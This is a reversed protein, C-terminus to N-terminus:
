KDHFIIIIRGNRSDLGIHFVGGEMEANLSGMVFWYDNCKYIGYPRQNIINQKGFVNFLIPEIVSILTKSDNILKTNNLVYNDSKESQLYENIYKQAIKQGLYTKNNIITDDINSILISINPDVQISDNNKSNDFQSARKCNTLLLYSIMMLSIKFYFLIKMTM